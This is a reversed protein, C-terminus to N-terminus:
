STRQCVACLKASFTRAPAHVTFYSTALKPFSGVLRRWVYLIFILKSLGMIFLNQNPCLDVMGLWPIGLISIESRRVVLTSPNTPPAITSPSSGTGPTRSIQIITPCPGVASATPAPPPLKSMKERM